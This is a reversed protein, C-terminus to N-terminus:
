SPPTTPRRGAATLVGAAAGNYHLDGWANSIFTVADAAIICAVGDVNFDSRHLRTQPHRGAHACFPPFITPSARTAPGAGASGILKVAAM